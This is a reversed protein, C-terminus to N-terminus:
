EDGFIEGFVQAAHGRLDVRGEALARKAANIIGCQTTGLATAIAELQVINPIRHGYEIERYTTKKLGAAAWMEPQSLNAAKRRREIEEAVATVLPERNTM